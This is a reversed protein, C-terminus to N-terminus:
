HITPKAGEKWRKMQVYKSESERVWLFEENSLSGKIRNLTIYPYISLFEQGKFSAHSSNMIPLISCNGKDGDAFGLEWPMWKSTSANESTAYVLTKSQKMRQRILEATQKTVNTRSLHPDIIWDVYVSYGKDELDFYLGKVYEKDRYSHSLFIDFKLLEKNQSSFSEVIRETFRREGLNRLYDKTYFAM